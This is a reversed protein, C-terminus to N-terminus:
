YVPAYANEHNCESTRRLQYVHNMDPNGTVAACTAEVIRAPSYRKETSHDHGYIKILRAYDIDNGFANEIAKLYPKHGDTTLQVRNALRGALDDIFTQAAKSDRAGM